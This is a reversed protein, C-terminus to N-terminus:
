GPYGPRKRDYDRIDPLDKIEPFFLSVDFAVEFDIPVTTDVKNAWPIFEIQFM